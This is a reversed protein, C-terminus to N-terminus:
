GGKFELVDHIAGNRLDWMLNDPKTRLRPLGAPRDRLETESLRMSPQPSYYCPLGNRQHLHNVRACASGQFAQQIGAESRIYTFDKEGIRDYLGAKYSQVVRSCSVSRSNRM